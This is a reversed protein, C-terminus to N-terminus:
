QQGEKAVGRPWPEHAGTQGTNSGLSVHVRPQSAPPAEWALINLSVHRPTIIVGWPAVCIVLAPHPLFFFVTAHHLSFTMM